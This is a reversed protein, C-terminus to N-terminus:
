SLGRAAKVRQGSQCFIFWVRISNAFGTQGKKPGTFCLHSEIGADQMGPMVELHRERQQQWVKKLLKLANDTSCLHPDYCFFLSNHL